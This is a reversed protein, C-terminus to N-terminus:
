FLIKKVNLVSKIEMVNIVINLVNEQKKMAKLAGQTKWDLAITFYGILASAKEAQLHTNKVLFHSCIKIQYNTNSNLIFFALLYCFSILPM